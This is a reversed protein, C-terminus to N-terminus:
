VQGARGDPGQPGGDQPQPRRFAESLVGAAQRADSYRLRWARSRAAAAALLAVRQAPAKYHNFSLALLGTLVESAHLPLLEAPPHGDSSRSLFVVEALRLEDHSLRGRLDAVGVTVEGEDVDAPEGLSLVSLSSADLSLPKAYARVIGDDRLRLAEDSVYDWGQLVCAATLTSKGGGSVAALAVVAGEHAV